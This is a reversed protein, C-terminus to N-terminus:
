EYKKLLEKLLELFEFTCTELPTHNYTLGSLSERFYAAKLVEAFRELDKKIAVLEKLDFWFQVQIVEDYKM